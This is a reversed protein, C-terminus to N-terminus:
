AVPFSERLRALTPIGSRGDLATCALAAVWNAERVAEELPLERVLGALLAGHFVDGAGLTSVVDVAFPPVRTTGEATALWTGESGDTVVVFRAGESHAARIADHLELRPFRLSLAARTPAYLEVGTLELGGIRNGADVSLLAGSPSRQLARVTSSYGTQDVHLWRSRGVPIDDIAPAPAVTTIISRGATSASVLIVATATSVLDSVRLWRTDVNEAELSERVAAGAADDGVVGCMAVRVGLRALAVAATAAPGGGATVFPPSTLREDDIPVHDVAVITDLNASGVCIVDFEDAM